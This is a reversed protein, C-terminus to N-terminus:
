EGANHISVRATPGRWDLDSPAIDGIGHVGNHITIFGEGDGDTAINAGGCPPGPIDACLENNYESGADYTEAMGRATRKVKPAKMTVSAFADNTTALMGAVTFMTKKPAKIKVTISHGPMIVHPTQDLSSMTASVNPNNELSDLLPTVNGGEAMMILEASAVGTVNFLKFNRNHAIVAPPTIIQHATTNTVTVHYTNMDDSHYDKAMVSACALSSAMALILPLTKM